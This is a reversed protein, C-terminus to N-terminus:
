KGAPGFLSGGMRYHLAQTLNLWSKDILPTQVLKEGSLYEFGYYFSANSLNIQLKETLEAASPNYSYRMHYRWRFDSQDNVGEDILSRTVDREHVLEKILQEFKKRADPPLDLLVTEAMIDLKAELDLLAKELATKSEGSADLATDICTSWNIQAALVMVQAPFKMAWEIFTKKGEESATSVMSSSDEQVAQELLLALTSQMREELQKLWEKVGMHKKVLIPKYFPVVEGDKSIMADFATLTDDPQADSSVRASAIGAFM